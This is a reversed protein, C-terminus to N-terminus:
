GIVLRFVFPSGEGGAVIRHEGPGLPRYTRPFLEGIAAGDVLTGLTSHTDSVVIGDSGQDILFHQRSLRYPMHDQLALDLPGSDVDDRGVRFPLHAVAVGQSGLAREMAPSDGFLRVKGAFPGPTIAPARGSGAAEVLRDDLAHLRESLRQLMSLALGPDAAIRALFADRELLEATVPELARVTASRPRRELVGMEGVIEGEGIRGLVVFGDGVRRVVEVLGERIIAVEHSWQGEEFLAEGAQYHRETM